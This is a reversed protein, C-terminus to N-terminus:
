LLRPESREVDAAGHGRADDSQIPSHCLRQQATSGFEFTGDGGVTEKVITLSAVSTNTFTCTIDDGPSATLRARPFDTGWNDDTVGVCEIDTLEWGAPAIEEIELFGAPLDTLTTQATGGTTTLSFNTFDVDSNATQEFAFTGDDGVAEKVIALDFTEQEFAGIDDATGQPRAIGRQDTTLTGSDGANIAPSGTLLAHTFTPGGNDALPGLVPDQGVINGNVGDTFGCSSQSEVLNHGGDIITGFGAECDPGGTNDGLVSNSVTAQGLFSVRLGGAFSGNNNGITTSQLTLQGGFVMIGGASSGADNGSITSNTITATGGSVFVGGGEDATSTNNAITSSNIALTGDFSYIGGGDDDSQNESITSRNITLHGLNLIGGGQEAGTVKGRRVILDNMTVTTNAAVDFVRVGAIDQGDVGFGGGEIVLEVGATANDIATTSASLNINKTLTITYSDPTTKSNFCAIAANLEAENAVPWNEGCAPADLLINDLQSRGSLNPDGYLTIVLTDVTNGALNVATVFKSTFGPLDFRDTGALTGGTGGVYGEVTIYPTGLGSGGAAVDMGIFQFSTADQKTITLKGIDDPHRTQIFNGSLPSPPLFNNIRLTNPSGATSIDFGDEQSGNYDQVFSPMPVNNFDITVQTAQARVTPIGIAVAGLLLAGLLLAPILFRLARPSKVGNAFASM